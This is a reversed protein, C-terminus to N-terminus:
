SSITVVKMAIGGSSSGCAIRGESDVCIVGVTDMIKDEDVAAACPLPREECTGNKETKRQLEESFLNNKAEVASLMSKFKRWQNRARETVLWQQLMRISSLYNELFLTISLLAPSHPFRFRSLKQSRKLCFLMKPNPGVDLEKM